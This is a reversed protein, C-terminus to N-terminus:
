IHILSLLYVVVLLAGAFSLGNVWVEGLPLLAFVPHLVEHLAAEALAGLGVSCITIGLQATALMSGMQELAAM